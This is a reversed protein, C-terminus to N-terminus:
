VPLFLDPSYSKASTWFRVHTISGVFTATSGRAFSGLLAVERTVGGGAGFGSPLRGVERGDRWVQVRGDIGYSFLWTHPGGVADVEFDAFGSARQNGLVRLPAGADLQAALIGDVTAVSPGIYYLAAGPCPARQNAVFSVSFGRSYEATGVPYAPQELGWARSGAALADTLDFHDGGGSLEGGPFTYLLDPLVVRLGGGAAYLSYADLGAARATMQSAFTQLNPLQVTGALVPSDKPARADILDLWGQERQLMATVAANAAAAKTQETLSSWQDEAIKTGILAELDDRANQLNRSLTDVALTVNAALTRADEEAKATASSSAATIRADTTAKSYVEAANAKLSVASALQELQTQLGAVSTTSAKGDLLTDDDDRLRYTTLASRLRLELAQLALPDM